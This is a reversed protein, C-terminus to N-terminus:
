GDDARRSSWHIHVIRWGGPMRRLVMTEVGRADIDRNRYRGTTHTESLVLVAAGLQQETRKTVVRTTAAAFSMDAGLHHGAYEDRSQEVGGSEFIVVDPALYDVAAVSDRDALAGHFSDVIEAAPPSQGAAPWPVLTVIVLWYWYRM